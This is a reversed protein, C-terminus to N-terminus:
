KVHILDKQLYIGSIPILSLIRNPIVLKQLSTMQGGIFRSDLDTVLSESHFKIKKLNACNHFARNSIIKVSKPIFFDVIGSEQFAAGGIVTLRSDSAFRVHKLSGCGSFARQDIAIVSSPIIVNSLPLFYFAYSGIIEISERITVHGKRTDYYLLCSPHLQYVAKDSMFFNELQPSLTLSKMQHFPIANHGIYKISSPINIKRLLRINLSNKELVEVNSDDQFEVISVRQSLKFAKTCIKTLPIAEGNPFTVFSPVKFYFDSFKSSILMCTSGDLSRYKETHYICEM